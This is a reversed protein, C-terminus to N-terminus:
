RAGGGGRGSTPEHPEDSKLAHPAGCGYRRASEVAFARFARRAEDSGIPRPLLATSTFLAEGSPCSATTWSTPGNAGSTGRYDDPSRSPDRRPADPYPGYYAALRHTRAGGPDALVCQEVPAAADAPAEYGAVGTNRCTGTTAGPEKLVEFAGSSVKPEGVDPLACGHKAAAQELARTVLEATAERRQQIRGGSEAQVATLGLVLSDGAAKQLGPKQTGCPLLATAYSEGGGAATVLAPWGGGVPVLLSEPDKSLIQRAHQVVSAPRPGREVTVTVSARGDPDYARCGLDGLQKGSVREAGLTRKMVSADVMGGCGDALARSDSWTDFAGTACAVGGGAVLITVIAAAAISKRM